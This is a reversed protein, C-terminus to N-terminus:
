PVGDDEPTFDVNEYVVVRAPDLTRLHRQDVPRQIKWRRKLTSGAPQARMVELMELYQRQANRRLTDTGGPGVGALEAPTAVTLWTDM